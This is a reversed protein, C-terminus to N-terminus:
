NGSSGAFFGILGMVASTFFTIVEGSVTGKVCYIITFAIILILILVGVVLSKFHEGFFQDFKSERTPSGKGGINKISESM